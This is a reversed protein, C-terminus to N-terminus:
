SDTFLDNLTAAIRQLPLMQDVTERDIAAGPMGFNMSTVEDSVLVCGGFRKVASTGTAGDHGGGTLVVAVASAGVTLALSTLLLDASPRAPPLAGSRILAVSPGDAVLTHWGAPAVVARGRALAAGDRAQSVPLRSHEGLLRALQSHSRPDLHQLVVVAAGLAPDLGGLVQQLAVLGGASCVIAVVPTGAVVRRGRHGRRERILTATGARFGVGM